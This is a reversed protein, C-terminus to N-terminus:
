RISDKFSQVQANISRLLADKRDFEEKDSVLANLYMTKQQELFDIISQKRVPVYQNIVDLHQPFCGAAVLRFILQQQPQGPGRSCEAEPFPIHQEFIRLGVVCPFEAALLGVVPNKGIRYLQGACGISCQLAIQIFQVVLLMELVDPIGGQGHTGIAQDVFAPHPLNAGFLM